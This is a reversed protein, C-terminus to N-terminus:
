WFHSSLVLKKHWWLLLQYHRCCSQSIETFSHVFLHLFFLQQHQCLLLICSHSVFINIEKIICTDWTNTSSLRNLKRGLINIKMLLKHLRCAKQMVSALHRWNNFHYPFSHRQCAFLSQRSRISIKNVYHNQLAVKAWKQLQLSNIM